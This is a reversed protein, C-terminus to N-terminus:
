IQFMGSKRFAEPLCVCKSSDREYIIDAVFFQFQYVQIKVSCDAIMKYRELFVKYPM